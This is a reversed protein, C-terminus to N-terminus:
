VTFVEKLISIHYSNIEGHKEHSVKHIGINRSRSLKAAERGLVMANTENIKIGRRVGYGMITYYEGEPSSSPLALAGQRTRVQNSSQEIMKFAQAIATAMAPIMERIITAIQANQPVVEANQPLSVMNAKRVKEMVAIAQSQNLITMRGKEMLNPFLERVVREVSDRSIGALEAIQKITMEQM